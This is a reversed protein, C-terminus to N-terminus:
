GIPAKARFGAGEGDFLNVDDTARKRMIFVHRRDGWCTSAVNRFKEEEAVKVSSIKDSTEAAVVSALEKVERGDVGTEEGECIDRCFSPFGRMVECMKM